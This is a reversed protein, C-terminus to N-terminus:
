KDYITQITNINVNYISIIKILNDRPLNKIYEMENKKLIQFNRINQILTYYKNDTLEKRTENFFASSKETKKETDDDFSAIKNNRKKWYLLVFLWSM